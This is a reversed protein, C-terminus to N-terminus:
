NWLRDGECKKSSYAHALLISDDFDIEGQRLQTRIKFQARV